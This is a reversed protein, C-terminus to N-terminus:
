DEVLGVVHARLTDLLDEPAVEIQIGRRGGSAYVTDFQVMTEDVYAELRRKQGFPSIGGTVYGTWREADAPEAMRARKGNAARALKKLSLRGTAPVIAMTPRDDVVAILTKFLREPGVGIAAAVSEGYSGEDSEVEYTHIRHEIERQALLVLAATNGIAM